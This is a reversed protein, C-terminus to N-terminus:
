LLWQRLLDSVVAKRAVAVQRASKDGVEFMEHAHILGLLYRNPHLSATYVQGGLSIQPCGSSSCIMNQGTRTTYDHGGEVVFYVPSGVSLYSTMSEFYTLVYSDHPMSLKQDLGLSLHGAMAVCCCSWVAFVIM